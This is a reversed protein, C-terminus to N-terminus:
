LKRQSRNLGMVFEEMGSISFENDFGLGGCIDWINWFNAMAKLVLVKSNKASSSLSGESESPKDRRSEASSKMGSWFTTTMLGSLGGWALVGNGPDGVVEGNM